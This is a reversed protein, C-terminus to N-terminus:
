VIHLFQFLLDIARNSARDVADITNSANHSGFICQGFKRLPSQNPLPEAEFVDLAASHVHGSELGRVLAQEDILPGRSVNVLRVGKKMRAIAGDNVIHHTQHTLPSTLVLIDARGIGDPWALLRVFDHEPRLSVFPDYGIIEMGCAHLRTALNGGIDGLGVVAATRGALSIGRPKPWEGARVGRDIVFTERALAIVYSLALDAVEAGFMGPTNSFPLQLDRVAELDVNDVGIGWKVAARLKGRKGAELVKRTAPDDGIIWGDFTPLTAILEAESMTQTIQPAKLEVNAKACRDRYADINLLMPPCTVLM